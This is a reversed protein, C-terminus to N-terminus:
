RKIDIHVALGKSVAIDIDKKSYSDNIDTDADIDLCRERHHEKIAKLSSIRLIKKDPNTKM